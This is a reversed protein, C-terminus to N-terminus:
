ENITNITPYGIEPQQGIFGQFIYFLQRIDLASIVPFKATIFTIDICINGRQQVM